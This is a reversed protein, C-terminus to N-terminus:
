IERKLQQRAPETAEHYQTLDGVVQNAQAVDLKAAIHIKDAVRRMKAAEADTVLTEPEETEIQATAPTQLEQIVAKVANNYANAKAKWNTRISNRM